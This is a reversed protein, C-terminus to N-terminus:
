KNQNIVNKVPSFTKRHIACPGYHNLAKIHNKTPYGKHADFGYHPYMEHYKLMIEDRTVKALISAAAITNSLTDGKIIAEHPLVTNLRMADTITFDANLYLAVQTMAEQTAQYINLEDITQPSIVEIKFAIAEDLIIPYLELRKKLSLQKSDMLGQIGHDKKLIVGAVVCPGALPGRGAEDIGALTEINKQYYSLDIM